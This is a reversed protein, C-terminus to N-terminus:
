SRRLQAIRLGAASDEVLAAFRKARTEPRKASVVLHTATKRYGPPQAEWFTWAARNAKFQKTEAPTFSAADREFSYLGSRDPNRAEWVALGAPQMRGERILADVKRVNVTSWISGKKRPTFRIVYSEADLSKRIGDIWGFCLAEDV